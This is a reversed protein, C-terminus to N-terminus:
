APVEQSDGRSACLLDTPLLALVKPVHAEFGEGSQVIQTEASPTRKERSATRSKDWSLTVTKSAPAEFQVLVSRLTGKKGDIGWIARPETYVALEKGGEETARIRRDDSLVDPGFPLGFSVVAKSSEEAQPVLTVTVSSPSKPAAPRETVKLVAGLKELIPKPDVPAQALLLFILANMSMGRDRDDHGGQRREERRAQRVSPLDRRRRRKGQRRPRL